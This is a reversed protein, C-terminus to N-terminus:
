HKLQEWKDAILSIDYEFTKEYVAKVYLEFLTNKVLSSMGSLIM